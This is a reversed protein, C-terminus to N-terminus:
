IKDYEFAGKTYDTIVDTEYRWIHSSLSCVMRLGGTRTQYSASGSLEVKKTNEAASCV